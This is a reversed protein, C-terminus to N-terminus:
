IWRTLRFHLIIQYNDAAPDYISSKGNMLVSNSCQCKGEEGDQIVADTDSTTVKARSATVTIVDSM